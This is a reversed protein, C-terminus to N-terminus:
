RGGRRASVADAQLMHAAREARWAEKFSAAFQPNEFGPSLGPGRSRRAHTGWLLNPLVAGNPPAALPESIQWLTPM